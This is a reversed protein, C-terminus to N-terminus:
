GAEGDVGTAASDWVMASQRLWRWAQRRGLCISTERAQWPAHGRAARGGLNAPISRAAIDGGGGGHRKLRGDEGESEKSEARGSAAEGEREEVM